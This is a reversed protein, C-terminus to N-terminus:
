RTALCGYLTDALQILAHIYGDRGPGVGALFPDLAVLHGHGGPLLANAPGQELGPPGIVCGPGERAVQNQLESLRADPVMAGPPGTLARVNAIGIEALWYGFADDASLLRRSVLRDFRRAQRSRYRAMEASFHEAAGTTGLQGAVAEVLLAANRTSLWLHRNPGGQGSEDSPDLRYDRWILGPLASFNIVALGARPAELAPALWPEAEPGNWVVLDADALLKLEREGPQFGPSAFLPTMLIQLDTDPGAAAAVLLALPHNSAVVSAARAEVCLVLCLLAIFLRPM